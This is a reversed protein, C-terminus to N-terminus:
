ATPGRVAPLTAEPAPLAVKPVLGYQNDYEEGPVFLFMLLVVFGVVPVFLALCWFGSKGLDHLRKAAIAFKAWFFLVVLIIMGLADLGTGHLAAGIAGLGLFLGVLVIALGLLYQARGIRGNFSFLLRVLGM